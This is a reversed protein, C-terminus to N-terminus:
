VGQEPRDIRLIEHARDDIPNDPELDGRAVLRFGARLLARWSAANAANVPVVICTADPDTRWVRAVFAAIMASGLGRGTDAPDGLLYDISVAGHPVDLIPSLEDVYAPYDAYRSCQVLGVARGEHLAVFDENPELGDVSDGFDREIAEATFEHNWWRAVHREALWRALLGFDARTVRRFTFGV